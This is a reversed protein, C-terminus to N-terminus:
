PKLAIWLSVALLVIFVVEIVIVTNITASHDAEVDAIFNSLQTSDAHSPGQFTIDDV